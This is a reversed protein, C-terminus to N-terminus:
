LWLLLQSMVVGQVTKKWAEQPSATGLTLCFICYTKTLGVFVVGEMEELKGVGEISYLVFFTM